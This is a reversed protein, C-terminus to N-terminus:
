PDKTTSDLLYSDPSISYGHDDSFQIIFDKFSDKVDKCQTDQVWCYGHKTGEREDCIIKGKLVSDNQNYNTNLSAVFKPFTTAPVLVARYFSDVTAMKNGDKKDELSEFTGDPKTNMLDQVKIKWRTSSETKYYCVPYKGDIQYMFAENNGGITAYSPKPSKNIQLGVVKEKIKKDNKLLAIFSPGNTPDDPAVGLIGSYSSSLQLNQFDNVAFFTHSADSCTNDSGSPTVMCVKDTLTRGTLNGQGFPVVTTMIDPSAQSSNSASRDYRDTGTACTTCDKQLVITWDTQSDIVLNIPQSPTGFLFPNSYYSNNINKLELNM